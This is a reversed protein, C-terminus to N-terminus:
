RGFNLRWPVFPSLLPADHVVGAVAFEQGLAFSIRMADMKNGVKFVRDNGWQISLTAGPLTLLFTEVDVIKMVRVTEGAGGRFSPLMCEPSM